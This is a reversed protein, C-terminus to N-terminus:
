ATSCAGGSRRPQNPLQDGIPTDSPVSIADPTNASTEVSGSSCNRDQPQRTGNQTLM